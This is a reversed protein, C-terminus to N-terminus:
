ELYKVMELLNKMTIWTTNQPNNNQPQSPTNSDSLNISAIKNALFTKMADMSQVKSEIIPLPVNTNKSIVPIVVCHIFTLVIYDLRNNLKWNYLADMCVNNNCINPHHEFGSDKIIIDPPNIPYDLPFKLEFNVTKRSKSEDNDLLGHQYKCCWILQPGGLFDTIEIEPILDMIAKREKMLRKVSLANMKVLSNKSSHLRSIFYKILLSSFAKLNDMNPIVVLYKLRVHEEFPVVFISSTRRYMQRVPDDLGSTDDTQKIAASPYSKVMEEYQAQSPQRVEFVGIIYKGTTSSAYGFSSSLDDSFYIGPGWVQGTTMKNTGSYNKLGNRIISHWNHFPSGHFLYTFNEWPDNSYDFTYSKFGTKEDLHFTDEILKVNGLSLQLYNMFKAYSNSNKALCDSSYGKPLPDYRDPVGSASKALDYLFTKINEDEYVNIDDSRNDFAWQALCHQSMCCHLKVSKVEVPQIHIGNGCYICNM